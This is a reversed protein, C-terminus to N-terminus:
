ETPPSEPAAPRGGFYLAGFTLAISVLAASEIILMWTAAQELPYGLLFGSSRLLLATVTTFTLSGIALGFRIWGHRHMGHRALGALLFLVAAGGLVAGGQFAGGPAFAGIWLLYGGSLILMPVVLRLLSFLALPAPQHFRDFDSPRVSWLGVVALLFVAVELLTDYGRYNLLAATVPNTVGSRSLEALASATLGAPASPLELLAYCLLAFLLASLSALGWRAM